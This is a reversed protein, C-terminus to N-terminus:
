IYFLGVDFNTYIYLHKKFLPLGESFQRNVGKMNGPSLSTKTKHNKKQGDREDDHFCSLVPSM